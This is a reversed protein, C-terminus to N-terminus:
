FPEDPSTIFDTSFYGTPATKDIPYGDRDLEIVETPFADLEEFNVNPFLALNDKLEHSIISKSSNICDPTEEHNEWAQYNFLECWGKQYQPNSITQSDVEIYKPAHFNDFHPCILCTKAQSAPKVVTTQTM